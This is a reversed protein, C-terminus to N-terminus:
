SKSENTVLQPVLSSLVAYGAFTSTARLKLHFGDATFSQEGFQFSPQGVEANTIPVLSGGNNVVGQYDMSGFIQWTGTIAFDVSQVEKRVGPSKMDSWPTEMIAQTADYAVTGNTNFGFCLVHFTGGINALIFVQQNFLVFKVPVFSTVVGAVIYQPLYQSWAAAIKASPFYSLVYIHGNIYHWYRNASPEVISCTTPLAAFGVATLDNQVLLDVPSGLDNVFANDSSDRVRLSRFGTLSPFIVDLDGISQPGLPCYTGINALTQVVQIQTPDANLVWIQVTNNSFLAMKGQYAQLSVLTENNKFSNSTNIVFAGPAQTEWGTADNNDSGYWRSGAIFHVRSNLVICATPVVGTLNGVGLQYTLSPTVLQMSYKDGVAWTGGFTVRTTAGRGNIGSVGGAFTTASLSSVGIIYFSAAM